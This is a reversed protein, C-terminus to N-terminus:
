FASFRKKLKLCPREIFYYSGLAVPVAILLYFMHQWYLNHQYLAELIPFHWVYLAYSIQGTFVLVPNELLWHLVSRNGTAMHLVLIMTLLSVLLWGACMMPPSDTLYTGLWTIVPVALIAVWQLWKRILVTQTLLNSAVLVGAFSGLLLSDARTDTGFLLRHPDVPLINGSLNTTDAVYLGVRLLASLFVGLFIWCLLSSRTTRSLLFWLIGPWIIYFQEEVSLSWTHVLSVHRGIHYIVAWNSVYFLAFLAENVERWARKYPDALFAYTIFAALMAVLAPLLRLARRLYFRVLNIRRNKDYEEVLLCTILFGSLVFFTNVGVFGFGDNLLQGHMLLVLIISVGRLGDFSKCYGQHFVPPVPTSQAKTM